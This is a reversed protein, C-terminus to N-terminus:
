PRPLAGDDRDVNTDAPIPRVHPSQPNTGRTSSEGIGRTGTAGAGSGGNGENAEGHGEVPLGPLHATRLDPPPTAGEDFTGWRGSAIHETPTTIGAPGGGTSTPPRDARPDQCGIVAIVAFSALWTSSAIRVNM